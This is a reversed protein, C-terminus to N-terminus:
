PEWTIRGGDRFTYIRQAGRAIAKRVAAPSILLAATAGAKGRVALNSKGTV